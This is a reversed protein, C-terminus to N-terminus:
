SYKDVLKKMMEPYKKLNKVYLKSKMKKIHQEVSRAQEYHLDDMTLFLEWDDAKATFSDNFNKNNHLQM